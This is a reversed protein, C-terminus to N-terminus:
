KHLRAIRSYSADSRLEGTSAIKCKFGGVEDAIKEKFVQYVGRSSISDNFRVGLYREAGTRSSRLVERTSAARGARSDSGRPRGALDRSGAQESQFSFQNKSAFLRVTRRLIVM